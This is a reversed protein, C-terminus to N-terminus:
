KVYKADIWGTVAKGVNAKSNTIRYRGNVKKGDYLYYTGTKLGSRKTATSSIYLPCLTLKVQQGAKPSVVAQSSNSFAKANVWGTVMGAVGVYKVDTTIRVRGNVIEESWLYATGSKTGAATKATSSVYLPEKYLTASTVKKEEPKEEEPEAYPVGHLECMARVTDEAMAAMNKHFWECDGAHDHFILEDYLCVAVTARIEYLDKNTVVKHTTPVTKRHKHLVNAAKKNVSDNWCMTMSYRGGGANTHAVYHLDAGWANSEEVRKYMAATGTAPGGRKVEFGLAKLRKEVIDMYQGCHTNESCKQPCLTPNDSGHLAPSLYIKAM